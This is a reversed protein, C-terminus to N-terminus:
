FGFQGSLTVASGDTRRLVVESILGALRTVRLSQGVDNKLAPSPVELADNRWRPHIALTLEAASSPTPSLVFLAVWLALACTLPAAAQRCAAFLSPIEKALGARRCAVARCTISAPLM